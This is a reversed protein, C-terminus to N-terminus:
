IMMSTRRMIDQESRDLALQWAHIMHKVSVDEPIEDLGPFEEENEEFYTTLYECLSMEGIEEEEEALSVCIVEVVKTLFLHVDVKRRLAGSFRTIVKKPMKDKFCGPVHDFPDQNNNLLFTARAVALTRWLELINKLKCQQYA